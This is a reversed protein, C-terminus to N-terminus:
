IFDDLRQEAATDLSIGICLRTSKMLKYLLPRSATRAINTRHASICPSRMYLRTNIIYMNYEIYTACMLTNDNAYVTEPQLVYEAMSYSKININLSLIYCFRDGNAM